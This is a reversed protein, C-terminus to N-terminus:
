HKHKVLSPWVIKAARDRSYGALLLAIRRQDAPMDINKGISKFYALAPEIRKREVASGFLIRRAELMKLYSFGGLDKAFARMKVFVNKSRFNNERYHIAAALEQSRIFDKQQNFNSVVTDWKIAALFKHAQCSANWTNDPDLNALLTAMRKSWQGPAIQDCAVMAKQAADPKKILLKALPPFLHRLLKVAHAIRFFESPQDDDFAKRLELGLRIRLAKPAFLNKNAAIQEMWLATEQELQWGLRAALRCGRIMRVPDEQLSKKSHARFIQKQIDCFGNFPDILNGNGDIALANATFDRGSLSFTGQAIPSIQVDGCTVITHKCSILSGNVLSKVLWQNAEAVIDVDHSPTYALWDRVYGGVLWFRIGKQRFRAVINQAAPPLLSFDFVPPTVTM